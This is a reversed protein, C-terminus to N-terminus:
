VFKLNKKNVSYNTLHVYKNNKSFSQTYPESAFRALGERFVYIKLPDFSTILVYIRLDFKLGNILLPNTIYRSVICQDDIPVESIDDIKLKNVIPIVLYIGRGRSSASPKVIWLNKESSYGSSSIKKIWHFQSYFDAFEDPLVYTDPVIDFYHKGYKEQMKVLNLCLRDKRSIEYSMPFHNIKQYESLGEYLYAKASNNTWLINWDHWDTPKFGNSELINGV